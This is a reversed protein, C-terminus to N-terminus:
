VWGFWRAAVAGAALVRATEQWAWAQRGDYLWGISGMTWVVLSGLIAVTLTPLSELELLVATLTVAAVVFWAATWV